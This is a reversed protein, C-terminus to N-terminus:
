AADKIFATLPLKTVRSLKAALPLSPQREGLKIRTIHPRSANVATALKQDNWNPNAELWAALDM